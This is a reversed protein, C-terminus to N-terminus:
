KIIMITVQGVESDRETGLHGAEHATWRHPVSATQPSGPPAPPAQWPTMHGPLPSPTGCRPKPRHHCQPSPHPVGEVWPLPTNGFYPM